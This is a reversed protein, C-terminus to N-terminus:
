RTMPVAPAAAAEGLARAASGVGYKADFQGRLEPHAQLFGIAAPPAGGAPTPAQGRMDQLKRGLPGIYPELVAPKGMYDPKAPDLLDAPNKGAVRYKDISDLLMRGFEYAREKGVTDPVGAFASKDIQPEVSSLFKALQKAFVPHGSTDALQKQLQDFDDWNLKGQGFADVLPAQDNVTGDAIQLLMKSATQHSTGPDVEGSHGLFQIMRLRAAPTLAALAGQGQAVQRATIAPQASRADAIVAKEAGDSAQKAAQVQLRVQRDHDAAIADFQVRAETKVRLATDPDLNMADIRSYLKALGDGGYGSAGYGGGSYTRLFGDLTPAAGYAQSQGAAAHEIQGVIAQRGAAATPYSAFTGGDTAKVGSDAQDPLGAFKINGPNNAVGQPSGGEHQMIYDAIPEAGHQQVVAALPQQGDPASAAPAAGGFPLRAVIGTALQPALHQKLTALKEPTFYRDYRGADIDRLVGSPDQQARAALESSWLADSARSELEQREEPALLGTAEDGHLRGVLRAYENPATYPQRYVQKATAETDQQAGAVAASKRGAMEIGTAHGYLDNQLLTFRDQLQARIAPPANDLLPQTHQQLAAMQAETFNDFNGSQLAQDRANQLNGYGAQTASSLANAYYQQNQQAQMKSGLEAPAEAARELQDGLQETARGPEALAGPDWRARGIGLPMEPGGAPAIETPIEPM